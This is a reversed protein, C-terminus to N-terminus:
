MRTITGKYDSSENKEPAFLKVKWIFTTGPKVLENTRIDVGNWPQSVDSTKYVTEGTRPDIILMEFPTNRELLAYPIFTANKPNAQEPNFGTVALLNYNTEIEVQKTTTSTCGNEDKVVLTLPHTGARYVHFDFEKEKSVSKGKEDKWELQLNGAHMAKVHNFPLGKEYFMPDIQFDITPASTAQLAAHTENKWVFVYSGAQSIKFAQKGKQISWTKGTETNKLSVEDMKSDIEVQDGVCLWSKSVSPKVFTIKNDSPIYVGKNSDIPGTSQNEESITVFPADSPLAQKEITSNTTSPSTTKALSASQVPQLSNNEDNKNETSLSKADESKVGQNQVLKSADENAQFLYIGLGVTIVSASAVAWKLWPKGPNSVPMVQDLRGELSKWASADYPVEQNRIADKWNTNVENKM